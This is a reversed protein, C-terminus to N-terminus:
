KSKLISNVNNLTKLNSTEEESVLEAYLGWYEGKYDISEKKDKSQVFIEITGPSVEEEYRKGWKITVTELNEKPTETLIYDDIISALKFVSVQSPDADQPLVFNPNDKDVNVRMTYAVKNYFKEFIFVSFMYYDQDTKTDTYRIPVQGVAHISLKVDNANFKTGNVMFFKNPEVPKQKVNITIINSNLYGEKGAHFRYEGIFQFEYLPSPLLYGELDTFYINLNALPHTGDTAKFKVPEGNVVDYKDASLILEKLVIEGEKTVQITLPTSTKYGRKKAIVVYVGKKTFKHEKNIKNNNIFLDADIVKNNADVVSFMVTENELVNKKNAQLALQNSIIEPTTNNDDSSCAAITIATFVITFFIFLKKM